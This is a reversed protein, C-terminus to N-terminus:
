RPAKPIVPSVAHNPVVCIPLGWGPSVKTTEAAAPATPEVAPCIALARPARTTPMAPPGSFHASRM